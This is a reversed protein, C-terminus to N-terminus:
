RQPIIFLEQLELLKLKMYVPRGRNDEVRCGVDIDSDFDELNLELDEIDEYHEVSGDDFFVSLPFVIKPDFM